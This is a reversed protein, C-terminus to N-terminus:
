GKAVFVHDKAEKIVFEDEFPGEVEVEKGEELHKKFPSSDITAFLLPEGRKSAISFTRRDNGVVVDITNGPKFDLTKDLHVVLYKGGKREVKVIKAKM